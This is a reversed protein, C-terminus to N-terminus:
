PLILMADGFSYFRYREEQAIRYLDLTREKGLISAILLLLTSAPLHFNTLLGDLFGPGRGPYLFLRTEGSSPTLRGAGADWCTELVRAATTGVCFVRGGESKVDELQKAVENALCYFEAHMVHSEVDEVRVPEFTGEGVHLLLECRRVGREEIRALLEGTFHLGATPAAVAGPEKAFVTQYRERDLMRDEDRELRSIYPPLPARGSRQLVAEIPEADGSRLEVLHRGMGKKELIRLELEGGELELIEGVRLKSSPKLFAEAEAGRRELILCEVKGGSKRRGLLRHPLVKTRNLVLADGKELFEPLASVREHRLLRPDSRSVVLMRASDRPDAPVRAILDEDLEYRYDELKM